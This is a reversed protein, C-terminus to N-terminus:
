QGYSKFGRGMVERANLLVIFADKDEGLAIRKLEGVEHNRVAVLLTTQDSGTYMGKSLFGTCGRHMKELIAGSIRESDKTVVLAASAHDLGTIIGNIVSSSVYQVIIAYLAAEHSGFVVSSMIIIAASIVLNIHGISLHPQKHNLMKSVIDAGGTTAGQAFILGLGAGSLLGGYLAILMPNDTLSLSYDAVIRGFLDILLSSVITSVTTRILFAKGLFRFSILFLPINLIIVLTGMPFGTLKDIVLAIGAVGGLPISAPRTFLAISLAYLCNGLIILSYSVIPSNIKRKGM